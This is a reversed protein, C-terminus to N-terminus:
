YLPNEVVFLAGQDEAFGADGLVLDLDGDEDLDRAVLPTGRGLVRGDRVGDGNQDGAGVVSLLALDDVTVAGSLDGGLLVVALGSTRGGDEGVALLLEPVGDGSWDGIPLIATIAEVKVGSIVAAADRELDLRGDRLYHGGHLYFLTDDSSRGVLLEPIGDGTWDPLAAVRMGVNEERQTGQAILTGSGNMSAERQSYRTASGWLIWASGVDLTDTDAYPDGVLVDDLGDGDLDAGAAGLTSLSESGGTEGLSTQGCYRATPGGCAFMWTADADEWELEGSGGGYQLALFNYPDDQHYGWSLLDGLGDGDLDLAAGLSAGLQFDEQGRLTLIASDYTATGLTPGSFVYITGRDTDAQWAAVALDDLGDGDFDGLNSLAHGFEDGTDDGAVAHSAVRDVRDNDVWSRNDLLYVRGTKNSEEPSGVVLDALGNGDFDGVALAFGAAGNSATSGTMMVPASDATAGLDVAGDCNDDQGNLLELAEPNTGPDLDDCDKGGFAAALWTDGDQDFDHMGDCNSDVGDYWTDVAGPHITPDVDQCDGGGLSVSAQHVVSDYGDRDQDWDSLGDCNQDIDDYWVEEAGPYVDARTDDCDTGGAEQSAYGDHDADADVRVSLPCLVESQEAGQLSIRMESSWAGYTTPQARVSFSFIEGTSVSGMGAGSVQFPSEVQIGTIQLPSGGTNVAQFTFTTVEGREVYGFDHGCPDLLMDGLAAQEGTDDPDTCDACDVPSTCGVLLSSLAMLLPHLRVPSM